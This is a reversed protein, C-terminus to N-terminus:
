CAGGRGWVKKTMPGTIDEYTRPHASKLPLNLLYKIQMNYMYWTCYMQIHLQRANGMDALTLNTQSFKLSIKSHKSVYYKFYLVNSVRHSRAVTLGWTYYIHICTRIIYFTLKGDMM